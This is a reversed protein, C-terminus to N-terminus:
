ISIGSSINNKKNHILFLEACALADSLADHHQLKIGYKSCVLNLKQGYIKYTCHAKFDPVAIRYYALTQQLCSVDFSSNHAVINQNRIYGMISPWIWEFSPSNRTMDPTIGHIQINIPAYFNDPPKVLLVIKRTIIGQEVRVLGVQCISNRKGQATEFDIATFTNISNM